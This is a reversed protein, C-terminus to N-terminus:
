FGVPGCIMGPVMKEGSLGRLPQLFWPGAPQLGCVRQLPGYDPHIGEGEKTAGRACM